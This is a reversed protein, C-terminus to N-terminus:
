AACEKPRHIPAVGFLILATTLLLLTGGAGFVGVVGTLGFIIGGGAAGCAIAAQVAAVLLGGASEAEDPVSRAVWTSWGVPVGGFAMGWLAVLLAITPLGAPLIALLLAAAGMLLPMLALTLRLSREILVGALLTGAFNALGFGLLLLSLTDIGLHAVDELYPRIFTFLAFHGGFVLVTCLIGLGFGPRRAVEVLTTLRATGTAALRPLCAFQFLLTVIGIGAAMLFVTRWGFLHGFFAGIPAAVITAVSVGTFLISLARPVMAPPVLRMAVATAMSWFGGLAIGLLLRALLLSTLSTASAVLLNSAILLVSFGMLVVRRDLARTVVAAVLAAVLAAAATVTVAQGVLAESIHMTAAMPTLLSAPLFEATVLSFVGLTLSFVALWKPTTTEGAPGIATTVQQDM